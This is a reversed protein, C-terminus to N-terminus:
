KGGYHRAQAVRREHMDIVQVRLGLLEIAEKPSRVIHPTIGTEEIWELQAKTLKGKPSKVEVFETRSRGWDDEWVVILDPHGRGLDSTVRVRAGAQRFADVIPSQNLDVRRAYKPM